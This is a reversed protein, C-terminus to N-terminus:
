GRREAKLRAAIAWLTLDDERAMRKLLWDRQPKLLSRRDGGMAPSKDPGDQSVAAAVESSDICEDPLASGSRPVVLADREIAEIVRARLDESIRGSWRHWSGVGALM